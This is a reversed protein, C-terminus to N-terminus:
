ELGDAVAALAQPAGQLPHLASMAMGTVGVERQAVQRVEVDSSGALGINAMLGELMEWSGVGGPTSGVVEM